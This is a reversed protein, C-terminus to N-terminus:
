INNDQFIELINNIIYMYLETLIKKRELHYPRIINIAEDYTFWGIDGIENMQNKNLPDVKPKKNSFCIAPFYIHKYSIGNTGILKEELNNLKDFLFYENDSYNSEENFERIACELNTEQFNRRGKPFGWEPYNWTPIVNKVYFDLGLYAENFTKLKNFKIKSQHYENQYISKNKNNQWLENWLEDFSKTGINKIEKPIMQKFLYIIGDVNEINYRGRIFEIYGLTHKRQILLFKIKDKYKCFIEIDSENQYKIGNSNVKLSTPFNNIYTLLKESTPKNINNTNNDSISVLVIGYSTIPEICHKYLHGNKGCNSCYPNTKLKNYKKKQKYM